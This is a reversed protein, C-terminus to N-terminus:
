LDSDYYIQTASHNLANLKHDFPGSNSGGDPSRHHFNSNVALEMSEKTPTEWLICSGWQYYNMVAAFRFISKSKETQVIELGMM